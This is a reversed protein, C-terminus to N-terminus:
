ELVEAGGFINSITDLPDKAVPEAKPPTAPAAEANKDVICKIIVPTGTLQLITESILQKNKPDDLRKQHFPFAFALTLEGDGFLPTAMRAIGYLTNYKQRIAQLAQQWTAEDM